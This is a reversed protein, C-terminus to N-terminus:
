ESISEGCHYCPRYVVRCLNNKFFIKYGFCLTGNEKIIKLKKLFYINFHFHTCRPKSHSLLVSRLFQTHTHFLFRYRVSQINPFSFKLSLSPTSWAFQTLTHTFSFGTICLHLTQSRFSLLSFSIIMCILNTYTHFLPCYHVSWTVPFFVQSPLNISYQRLQLDEKLFQFRCLHFNPTEPFRPSNPVVLIIIKTWYLFARSTLYRFRNM